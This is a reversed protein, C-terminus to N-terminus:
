IHNRGHYIDSFPMQQVALTKKIESFLGNGSFLAHHCQEESGYQSILEQLSFVQQFQVTNKAM